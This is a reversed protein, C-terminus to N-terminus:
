AIGYRNNLIRQRNNGKIMHKSFGAEDINVVLKPQKSLEKAVTEGLRDYDLDGITNNRIMLGDFVLKPLLENPVGGLMKNISAPVVREGVSLRAIISDSTGTGAGEVYETGKAYAPFQQQSIIAIQASTTAAIAAAQAAAVYPNPANAFANVVGAAGNILALTIKMKKDQEFAKKRLAREQKDYREQIKAKQEETLSKNRLEAERKKDLAQLENTLNAQTLDSMANVLANALQVTAQFEAQVSKLQEQMAGFALEMDLSGATVKLDIPEVKEALTANITNAIDTVGNVALPKVEKWFERDQRKKEELRKRYSEAEKIRLEHNLADIEDTYRIHLNTLENYLSKNVKKAVEANRLTQNDLETLRDIKRKIFALEAIEIDEADEGRAKMLEIRRQELTNIRAMDKEQDSFIKGIDKGKEIFREQKDGALGIAEKVDDWYAILGIIATIVLSIGLTAVAWAAASSIAFAKQITEVVKLATGYAYTKVELFGQVLASEKQLAQFVQQTGTALALASNVRLLAKQVDESEEGFLAQAGQVAAIAGTMTQFGQVVADIHRTDSSFHRIRAQVNGIEDKMKGAAKQLDKFEKTGEKGAVAMKVLENQMKRLEATLRVNSKSASDAEKQWQQAEEIATDLVGKAITTVVGKFSQNLEDVSQVSKKEETTVEKTLSLRERVSANATSNMQIFARHQEDSMKGLAKLQDAAQKLGSTDSVFEIVVQENM